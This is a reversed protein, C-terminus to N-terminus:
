IIQRIIRMLSEGIFRLCSSYITIADSKRSLNFGKSDLLLQQEANGETENSTIPYIYSRQCINHVCYLPNYCRQFALKCNLRFFSEDRNVASSARISCKNPLQRSRAFGAIVSGDALSMLFKHPLKM